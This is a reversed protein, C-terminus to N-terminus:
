FQRKEMFNKLNDRMNHLVGGQQKKGKVTKGTASGAVAELVWMVTSLIGYFILYFFSKLCGQSGKGARSKKGKGTLASPILDGVDHVLRVAKQIEDFGEMQKGSDQLAMGLTYRAEAFNPDIAIARRYYAAAEPLKRKAHHVCGLFYYGEAFDSNFELAKEFYSLSMDLQGTFFLTRGIGHYVLCSDPSMTLAKKYKEQARKYKEDEMDQAASELLKQFESKAPAASSAPQSSFQKKTQSVLESSLDSVTKTVTDVLYDLGIGQTKRQEGPPPLIQLNVKPSFTLGRQMWTAAKASDGRAEFTLGMAYCARAHNPDLNLASEFYKVAEDFRKAYLYSCGLRYFTEPDNPNLELARRYESVAEQLNGQYYAVLGLERYIMPNYLDYNMARRIEAAAKELRGSQCHRMGAELHKRFLEQHKSATM